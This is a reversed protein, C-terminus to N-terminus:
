SFDTMPCISARGDSDKKILNWNVGGDKSIYIYGGHVGAGGDCAAIYQGNASCAIGTWTRTNQSSWNWSTENYNACWIDGGNMAAFIENGTGNIAVGSWSKNGGDFSEAFWSIGTFIGYCM